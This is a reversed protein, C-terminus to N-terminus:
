SQASDSARWSTDLVQKTTSLQPPFGLVNKEVHLFQHGSIKYGM